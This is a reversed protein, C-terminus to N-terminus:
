SMCRSREDNQRRDFSAKEANRVVIRADMARICGPDASDLVHLTIPWGSRALTPAFVTRFMEPGLSSGGMGLVVIHRIGEAKIEEALAKLDASATRMQDISNLWGLRNAIVKIHEPESTWFAPDRNWVRSAAPAIKSFAAPRVHVRAPVM